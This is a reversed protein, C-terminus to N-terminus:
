QGKEIKKIFENKDKYIELLGKAMRKIDRFLYVKSTRGYVTIVNAPIEEIKLGAWHAKVIIETDWCWGKQKVSYIIKKISEANFGKFGCQYDKTPCKLFIKALFAYGKSAIRRSLPYKIKAEPHHKSGIAIDNGNRLSEIIKSFLSLEIQLDADFYIAYKTNCNLLAKTLAAGRGQNKELSSLIVRKDQESIKKVIEATKDTSGDNAVCLSFSYKTDFEKIVRQITNEIIYEENYAPIIITIETNNNIETM